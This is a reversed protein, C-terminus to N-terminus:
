CRQSWGSDLDVCVGNHDDTKCSRSCFKDVLHLHARTRVPQIQAGFPPYDPTTGGLLVHGGTALLMVLAPGFIALVYWIPSVRCALVRGLLLRLGTGGAYRWTLFLAAVSPTFTGLVILVIPSVPLAFNTYEAVLLPLWILWASGFTLLLYVRLPIRSVGM